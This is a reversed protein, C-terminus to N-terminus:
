SFTQTITNILGLGVSSLIALWIVNALNKRHEEQKFYSLTIFLIFACGAVAQSLPILFTTTITEFGQKLKTFAFMRRQLYQVPLCRFASFLIGIFSM